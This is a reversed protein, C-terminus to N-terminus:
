LGIGCISASSLTKCHATYINACILLFDASSGVFTNFALLKLVMDGKIVYDMWTKHAPGPRPLTSDHLFLLIQDLEIVSWTPQAGGLVLGPPSSLFKCTDGDLWWPGWNVKSHLCAPCCEPSSSLRPFCTQRRTKDNGGAIHSPAFLAM